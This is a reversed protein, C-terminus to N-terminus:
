EEPIDLQIPPRLPNSIDMSQNAVNPRHAERYTVVMIAQAAPTEDM